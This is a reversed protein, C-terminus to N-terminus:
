LKSKTFEKKYVVPCAFMLLGDFVLSTGLSCNWVASQWLSKNTYKEQSTESPRNMQVNLLVGLYYIWNGWAFTIYWVVHALVIEKKELAECRCWLPCIQGSTPSTQIHICGFIVYGWMKMVRIPRFDPSIVAFTSYIWCCKVVFSKTKSGISSRVVANGDNYYVWKCRGSASRWCEKPTM